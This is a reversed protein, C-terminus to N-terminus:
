QRWNTSSRRQSAQANAVEDNASAEAHQGEAALRLLHRQRLREMTKMQQQAIVADERKSDVEARREDAQRWAKALATRTADIQWQRERVHGLDIPNQALDDGQLVRVREEEAALSVVRDMQEVLLRQATALEARALDLRLSRYNLVPELPFRNRL